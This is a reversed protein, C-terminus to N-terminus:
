AEGYEAIIREAWERTLRLWDDFSIERRSYARNIFLLTYTTEKPQVEPPILQLQVVKSPKEVIEM